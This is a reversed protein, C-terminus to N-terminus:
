MEGAPGSWGSVVLGVATACLGVLLEGFAETWKEVNVEQNKSPRKGAKGWGGLEWTKYVPCSALHEM